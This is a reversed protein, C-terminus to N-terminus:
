RQIGILILGLFCPITSLFAVACIKRLNSLPYDRRHEDFIGTYMKSFADMISPAWFALPNVAPLERNLRQRMRELTFLGTGLSAVFGFGVIWYAPNEGPIMTRLRYRDESKLLFM